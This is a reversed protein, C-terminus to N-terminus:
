WSSCYCFEWEEPLKLCKDIIKITEKLEEIYYEDYETGGFFFGSTTPLLTQATDTNKVIKGKETHHVKNGQGDFTYGNLVAGDILKSQKIVDECLQKLEKLKDRDVYYEKCDDVGDQCNDVFWKHIQNAKRWYGVEFEIKVYDLNGTKFMEPLLKRIGENVRIERKHLEEYKDAKKMYNMNYFSRKASLYMDLGM